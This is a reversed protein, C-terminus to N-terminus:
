TSVAMWTYPSNPKPDENTCFNSQKDIQRGSFINAGRNTRSVSGACTCTWKTGHEYENVLCMDLNKKDFFMNQNHFEMYTTGYKCCTELKAIESLKVPEETTLKWVSHYSIDNVCKKMHIFFENQSHPPKMINQVLGAEQFQVTVIEQGHLINEKANANENANKPIKLKFIDNATGTEVVVIHDNGDRAAFSSLSAFNTKYAKPAELRSTEAKAFFKYHQYEKNSSSHPMEEVAMTKANTGYIAYNGPCKFIFEANSQLFCNQKEIDFNRGGKNDVDGDFTPFYNQGDVIYTKTHQSRNRNEVNGVHAPLINIVTGGDNQPNIEKDRPMITYPACYKIDPETCKWLDVIVTLDKCSECSRHTFSLFGNASLAANMGLDPIMPGPKWNLNNEAKHPEVFYLNAELGETFFLFLRFNGSLVGGKAMQFEGKGNSRLILANLIHCLEYTQGVKKLIVTNITAAKRDYDQHSKLQTVVLYNIGKEIYALVRFASSDETRFPWQKDEPKKVKCALMTLGASVNQESVYLDTTKDTALSYTVIPISVVM